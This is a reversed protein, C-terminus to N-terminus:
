RMPHDPCLHRHAAEVLRTAAETSLTKSATSERSAANRVATAKDKQYLDLCVSRGRSVAREPKEVLRPDIEGLAALYATQAATEPYVFGPESAQWQPSWPSYQPTAAAPVEPDPSLAIIAVVGGLCLVLVGVVVQLVIVRTSKRRPPSPPGSAPPPTYPQTM